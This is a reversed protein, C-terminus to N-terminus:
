CVIDEVAKRYNDNMCDECIIEGNIEYCHDDQIHEDCECCKPRSGLWEEQEADHSLFDQYPDNTFM